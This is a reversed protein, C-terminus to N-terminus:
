DNEELLEILLKRVIVPNANPIEKLVQEILYNLKGEIKDM